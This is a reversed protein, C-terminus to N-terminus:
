LYTEDAAFTAPLLALHVYIHLECLGSPSHGTVVDKWLGIQYASGSINHHSM